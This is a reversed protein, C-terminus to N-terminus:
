LFLLLHWLFSFWFSRPVRGGRGLVITMEPFSTPPELRVNPIRTICAGIPSLCPHCRTPHPQDSTNRHSNCRPEDDPAVSSTGTRNRYHPHVSRMQRDRDRGRWHPANATSDTASMQQASSELTDLAKSPVEWNISRFAALWSANGPHQAAPLKDSDNPSDGISPTAM